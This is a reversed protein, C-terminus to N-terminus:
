VRRNSRFEDMAANQDPRRAFRHILGAILGIIGGSLAKLPSAIWM